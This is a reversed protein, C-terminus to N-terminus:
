KKAFYKGVRFFGFRSGVRDRSVTEGKSKAGESKPRLVVREGECIKRIFLGTIRLLFM